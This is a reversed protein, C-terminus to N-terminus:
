FKGQHLSKIIGDALGIKPVYVKRAGSWKM